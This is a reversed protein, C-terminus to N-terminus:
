PILVFIYGLAYDAITENTAALLLWEAEFFVDLGALSTENNHKGSFPASKPPYCSEISESNRIWWCLLMTRYGQVFASFRTWHAVSCSEATTAERPSRGDDIKVAEILTYNSDFFTAPVIALM